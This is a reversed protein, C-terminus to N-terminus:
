RVTPTSRLEGAKTWRTSFDRRVRSRSTGKVLRARTATGRKRTRITTVSFSSASKKSESDYGWYYSGTQTPENGFTTEYTSVLFYGGDLWNFTEKNTAPVGPGFVTDLNERREAM